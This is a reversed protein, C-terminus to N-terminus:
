EERCEIATGVRLLGAWPFHHLYYNGEPTPYIRRPLLVDFVGSAWPDNRISEIRDLTDSQVKLWHDRFRRLDGIDEGNSIEIVPHYVRIVIKLSSYLFSIDM